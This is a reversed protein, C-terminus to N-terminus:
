EAASHQVIALIAGPGSHAGLVPGLNCLRPVITPVAAKLNNIITQADLPATNHIIAVNQPRPITKIFEQIREVGKNWNRALGLPKIEGDRLTILPKVGLVTEAKFVTDRLRGGKVLYRLTNLLGVGHLQGITEQIKEKIQQISCGAEAARAASIAVLGQWMTVGLSDVVEVRCKGEKEIAEKGLRASDLTSSHKGTVHISIIQDTDRSVEEYIKIFDGPSPSSTFAQVTGNELKNYFDENSIDVGDRYVQDGFRVYQPIL